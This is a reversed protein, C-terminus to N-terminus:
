NRGVGPGNRDAGGDGAEGTVGSVVETNVGAVHSAKDNAGVGGEGGAGAKGLYDGEAARRGNYDAIGARDAGDAASRAVGDHEGGLGWGDAGCAAGVAGVDGTDGDAGAGDGGILRPTSAIDSSRLHRLAEGDIRKRRRGRQGC